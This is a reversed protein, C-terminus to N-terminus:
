AARKIATDIDNPTLKKATMYRLWKAALTPPGDAAWKKATVPHVGVWAGFATQSVGLMALKLKYEDATM